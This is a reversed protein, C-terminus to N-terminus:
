LTIYLLSKKETICDKFEVFNKHSINIYQYQSLMKHWRGQLLYVFMWLHLFSTDEAAHVTSSLTLVSVQQAVPIIKHM